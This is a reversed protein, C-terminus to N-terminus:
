KGLYREVSVSTSEGWEPKIHSSSMNRSLYNEEAWVILVLYGEWQM